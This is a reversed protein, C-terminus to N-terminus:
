FFYRQKCFSLFALLLLHLPYGLYFFYKLHRNGAEGNYLALLPLALLSFIQYWETAFTEAVLLAGLMCLKEWRKPLYYLLLPTLAGLIGYDLSVGYARLPSTVSGLLYTLLLLALLSFLPPLVYAAGKAKGAALADLAYIMLVSLSFTLLITLALQGMAIFYVFNCLAGLLFLRLFYRKRDSTYRCGEAIMYAFVPFSLRGLIRLPLLGDFLLVATHDAIMTVFAILKLRGRDLSLTRHKM